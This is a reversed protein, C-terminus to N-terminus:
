KIILNFLEDFGLDLLVILVIFFGSFVVVAFIMIWTAKRNPWQVNKLEIWSNKFYGLIYAFPTLIKKFSFSPRRKSVKAKTAKDAVVKEVKKKV